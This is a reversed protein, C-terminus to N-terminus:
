CLAHPSYVGMHSINISANLDADIELGCACQYIKGRRNSKDIVGCSSCKQSTYAPNSKTFLIGAEETLHQLKALVKPYSWRQLKNNFKKCLKGKSEKKVNKLDEVVLERVDNTDFHNLSQNILNDREKLGKKFAKSGQKKRAIKEYCQELGDDLHQNDSTVALEKYGCDLGITRGTKRIKKAEKEFLVEVFYKGHRHILRISKSQSWNKFKNFHKHRKAPLRLQIKNGLSALRIWVDFTNNAYQFDVFRGDLNFAAGTFNPKVKKKYKRQSKVIELAQKGLCQQLRASLWTDVKFSVFKSYFDQNEWLIGIYLNVVKTMEEVLLNLIEIKGSNAYNINLVSRRIM